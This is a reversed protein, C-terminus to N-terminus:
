ASAHTTYSISAPLGGKLPGVVCTSIARCAMSGTGASRVARGVTVWATAAVISRASALTGDSRNAVTCAQRSANSRGVAEALSIEPVLAFDSEASVRAASPTQTATSGNM